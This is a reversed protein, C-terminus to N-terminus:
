RSRRRREDLDIVPQTPNDIDTNDGDVPRQHYKRAAVLKAIVESHTPDDRLQRLGNRVMQALLQHNRLGLALATAEFEDIEDPDTTYYQTRLERTKIM